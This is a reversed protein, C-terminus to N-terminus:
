FNQRWRQLSIQTIGIPVSDWARRTPAAMDSKTLLVSGIRRHRFRVPLCSGVLQLGELWKSHADVIVLWYRDEFLGAIDVHIRTWPETPVNWPILPVEPPRQRNRQCPECQNVHKEIEKDIGPWWVQFRAMSKMAVIGPHGEHLMALIRDRLRTPAVIRGQRLLIGDEFSLEDKKEFYVKLEDPLRAREPWGREM